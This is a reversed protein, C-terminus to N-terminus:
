SCDLLGFELLHPYAALLQEAFARAEPIGSFDELCFIGGEKCHGYVSWFEAEGPECPECRTERDIPDPRPHEKDRNLDRVPHLELGNFHNIDMMWWPTLAKAAEIPNDTM